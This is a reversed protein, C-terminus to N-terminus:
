PRRRETRICVDLPESLLSISPPLAEKLQAPSAQNEKKAEREQLSPETGSTRTAITLSTGDRRHFSLAESKRSVLPLPM